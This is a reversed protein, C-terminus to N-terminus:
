AEEHDYFDFHKKLIGKLGAKTLPKCLYDDVHFASALEKDRSNLSTSLMVIVIDEKNEFDLSNFKKLFGFGDVVPMNVDLLILNPCRRSLVCHTHINDLAQQGDSSIYLDKTVGMGKILLENLFNTTSDDDVLMIANLKRM